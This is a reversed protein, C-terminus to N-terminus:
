RDLHLPPAHSTYRLHMHSTCPRAPAPSTGALRREDRACRVQPEEAYCVFLTKTGSELTTLGVTSAVM